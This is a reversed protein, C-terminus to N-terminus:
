VKNLNKREQHKGTTPASFGLAALGVAPLIAAAQAWVLMKRRSHRDALAGALPGIVLGPGQQAIAVWAVAFAQDTLRYMLWMQAVTQVWFGFLSLVQSVMFFRYDRHALARVIM